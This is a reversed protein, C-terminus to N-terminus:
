AVTVDNKREEKLSTSEGHNIWGNGSQHVNIKNGYKLKGCHFMRFYYGEAFIM